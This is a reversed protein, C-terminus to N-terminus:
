RGTAKNTPKVPSEPAVSASSTSNLKPQSAVVRNTDTFDRAALKAERPSCTRQSKVACGKQFYYRALTKSNKGNERMFKYGLEFCRNADGKELCPKEFEAPRSVLPGASAPTIALTVAAASLLAFLTKM